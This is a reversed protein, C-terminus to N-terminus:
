DIKQILSIKGGPELCSEDTEVFGEYEMIPEICAYKEDYIRKEDEEKM